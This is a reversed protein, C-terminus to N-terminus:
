LIIYHIDQNFKNKSRKISTLEFNPCSALVFQYPFVHMVHIPFKPVLDSNVNELSNRNDVMIHHIRM